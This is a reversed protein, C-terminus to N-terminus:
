LFIMLDPDNEPDYGQIFQSKVRKLVATLKSNDDKLRQIHQVDNDHMYMEREKLCKHTDWAFLPDLWMLCNYLLEESIVYDNRTFGRSDRYPIHVITRRINWKYPLYDKKLHFKATLLERTQPDELYQDFTKKTNHKKNYQDLLDSVYFMQMGDIFTFGIMYDYCMYYTFDM